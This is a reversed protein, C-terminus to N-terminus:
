PRRPLSVAGVTETGPMGLATATAETLDWDAHNAYPGRDIVPVVMTRDGWMVAVMTGCPLTRNAVGLTSPRLREGCATHNGYLGPGYLTAIAPRYVTLTVAPSAGQVGARSEILARIGFRGIHNTNWTVTFSGNARIRAAATASWAWGTEHGNREIEITDGAYTAPVRGRFSVRHYLMASANVGITIGNGTAREPVNAATVPTGRQRPAHAKHQKRHHSSSPTLGTGGSNPGGAWAPTAFALVGIGTALLAIFQASPRQRV